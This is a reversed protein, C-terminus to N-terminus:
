LKGLKIWDGIKARSVTKKLGGQEQEAISYDCTARACQFVLFLSDSTAKGAVRRRSRKGCFCLPNDPHIGRADDFSYFEGCGYTICKYYPRNANGNDNEPNTIERSTEEDCEPCVPVETFFRM